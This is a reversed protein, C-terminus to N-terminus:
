HQVCRYMDASPPYVSPICTRISAPAEIDATSL